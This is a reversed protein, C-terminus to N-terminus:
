DTWGNWSGHIARLRYFICVASINKLIFATFINISSLNNKELCKLLQLYTASISVVLEAVERSRVPDFGSNSIWIELSLYTTSGGWVYNLSKESNMLDRAIGYITCKVLFKILLFNCLKWNNLCYNAVRLYLPKGM